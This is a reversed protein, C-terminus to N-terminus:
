RSTPEILLELEDVWVPPSLRRGTSPEFHLLRRRRGTPAPAGFPLVANTGGAVVPVELTVDATGSARRHAMGFRASVQAASLPAAHRFPLAPGALPFAQDTTADIDLMPPEAGPEIAEGDVSVSAIRQPPPAAKPVALQQRASAYARGFAVAPAPAQNEALMILCEARLRQWGAEDLGAVALIEARAGFGDDLLACVRGYTRITNLSITTGEHQVRRRDGPLLL